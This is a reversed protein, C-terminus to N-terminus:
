VHGELQGVHLGRRSFLAGAREVDHQREPAQSQGTAVVLREVTGHRVQDREQARIPPEQEDFRDV